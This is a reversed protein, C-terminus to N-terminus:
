NATGKDQAVALDVIGSRRARIMSMQWNCGRWQVDIGFWTVSSSIRFCAACSCHLKCSPWEVQGLVVMCNGRGWAIVDCSHMFYM